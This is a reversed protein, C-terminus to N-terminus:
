KKAAERAQKRMKKNEEETLRMTEQLNPCGEVIHAPVFYGPGGSDSIATFFLAYTKEKDIWSANDMTGATQLATAGSFTDIVLENLDTPDEVLFVNGGLAEEFPDKAVKIVNALFHRVAEPAELMEALNKFQKM